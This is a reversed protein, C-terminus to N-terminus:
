QPTGAALEPVPRADRIHPLASFDGKQLAASYAAAQAKQAETLQPSYRDLKEHALRAAVSGTFFERISEGIGRSRTGVVILRADLEGALHKIALAPDGVLTVASTRYRQGMVAVEAGILLGSLYDSVSTAALATRLVPGRAVSSARAFLAM